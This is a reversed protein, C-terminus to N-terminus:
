AGTTAVPPGRTPLCAAVQRGVGIVYSSLVPRGAPASSGALAGAGGDVWAVVVETARRRLHWVAATAAAAVLHAAVMPATLGLLLDAGHDHGGPCALTVLWGHLVLQIGVLAPLVSRIGARGRLVLLGAAYAPLAALALWLPDPPEGGAATHALGLATVTEVAALAASVGVGRVPVRRVILM